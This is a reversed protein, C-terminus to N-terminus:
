EQEEEITDADPGEGYDRACAKSNPILYICGSGSVECTYRGDEPDFEACSCSM